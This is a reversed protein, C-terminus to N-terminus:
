STPPWARPCRRPRTRAGSTPATGGTGSSSRPATPTRASRSPTSWPPTPTPWPRRSSRRSARSPATTAASAGNGNGNGPAAGDGTAARGARGARQRQRVLLGRPVAGARAVRHRDRRPREGHPGHLLLRGRGRLPERAAAGRRVGVVVPRAGPGEEVRLRPGPDDAHDVRVDVAPRHGAGGAAQGALGRHVPGAAPHHPGRPRHGARAAAPRGDLDPLVRERDDLDADPDDSGEVYVRLYGPFTITRGSAAWHTTTTGAVALDAAPASAVPAEIRVSVTKGVADAMQSALTRKWILDYLRLDPGRLETALQDPTRWREGAPRIAEHAEQANKVKGRYTRPGDPLYRDGYLERVQTRAATLAEESLTVSDTRMYTIYGREYLSQASRMVQASSLGLKRGARRNSPRPSSRRSRRAATRSRTSRRVGHVHRRRPGHGAGPRRARRRGGRRRAPVRGQSDFDKGTAVRADDLGVLTAQFAPDAPFAALLDWYGAPVFAMREREREVVLRVAPSRCAARRCARPSRAGCCRPCRTASSGTSSAAPRRPTSSGATSTALSTSRRSSPTAPSRTSCWAARRCGPSSCRPSTGPSPRAKATRM